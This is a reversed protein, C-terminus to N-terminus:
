GYSLDSDLTCTNHFGNANDLPNHNIQNIANDMSQVAPAQDLLKNGLCKVRIPIEVFSVM